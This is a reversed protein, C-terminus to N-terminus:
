PANRGTRGGKEGPTAGARRPLAPGDCTVRLRLLRACRYMADYCSNGFLGDPSFRTICLPVYHYSIDPTDPIYDPHRERFNEVWLM